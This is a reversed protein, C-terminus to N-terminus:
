GLTPIQVQEPFYKKFLRDPVGGARLQDIVESLVRTNLDGKALVAAYREDTKFQGAVVPGPYRGAADVVIPVDSM